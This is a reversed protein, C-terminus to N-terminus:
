RHQAHATGEELKQLVHDRLRAMSGRYWGDAVTCIAAAREVQHADEARGARRLADAVAPLYRDRLEVWAADDMTRLAHLLSPLGIGLSPIPMDSGVLAALDAGTRAWERVTDVGVRLILNALQGAAYNLVLRQVVTLRESAL